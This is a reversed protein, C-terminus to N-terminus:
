EEDTDVLEDEEEEESASEEEEMEAYKAVEKARGKRQAAVTTSTERTEPLKGLSPAAGDDDDQSIILDEL